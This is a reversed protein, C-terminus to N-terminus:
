FWPSSSGRRIRFEDLIGRGERTIIFRVIEAIESPLILEEKNIDPRVDGVMDTDVGGPAIMHVSINSGNLEESLSMTMGRLAHKSATYASQSPYGKISVVSGINIIFSRDSQELLSLAEKILIFPGRANINMCLDWSATPTEKLLDSHTVGANNVLVDIKGYKKKVNFILKKISEESLMDLYEVEVNGGNSKIEDAIKNMNDISRAALIINGGILSINRAIEAGIGRSAGTILVVKDKLNRM